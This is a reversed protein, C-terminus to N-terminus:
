TPTNLLEIAGTQEVTCERQSTRTDAQWSFTDVLRSKQLNPLVFCFFDILQRIIRKQEVTSSHKMTNTCFYQHSM